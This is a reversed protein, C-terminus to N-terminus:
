GARWGCCRSAGSKHRTAGEAPPCVQTEAQQAARQRVGDQQGGNGELAHGVRVAFQGGGIGNRRQACPQHEAGLGTAAPGM